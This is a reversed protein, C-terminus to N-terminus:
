QGLLKGLRIELHPLEVPVRGLKARAHADRELREETDHADREGLRALV